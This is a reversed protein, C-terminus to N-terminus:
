LGSDLTEDYNWSAEESHSWVPSNTCYRRYLVTMNQTAFRASLEEFCNSDPPICYSRDVYVRAHTIFYLM